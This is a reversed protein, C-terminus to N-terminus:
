LLWLVLGGVGLANAMHALAIEVVHIMIFVLIPSLDLGGMAPLVRRFPAMVPETIQHLLYVAPHGTGPAVWSLVIMAIIAFFYIKLLLGAIGFLSGILLAGPGAIANHRFFLLLAILLMQLLLALLLSSLDIGGLSPVVRRVPLVVPNTIRVLFQSIPNYFDARVLQLLFRLVMAFLYMSLLTQLLFSTIDTLAAM